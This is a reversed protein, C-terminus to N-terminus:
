KDLLISQSEVDPFEVQCKLGSPLQLRPNPISLTIGFTNSPADIAKDVQEVHATYSSKALTIEPTVVANMGPKIIGYLNSPAFVEVKLPDLQALQLIPEFYIHEGPEKYRELIVGDVPSTITRRELDALARNYELAAQRKRDKAQQLQQAALQYETSAKDLEAYSAAKNDYLDKVRKLNREAFHLGLEQAEIDSVLDAQMRRLEVTAAELSAELKALVDGASVNQNKSVLIESVVGETPSSIDIRVHPEIRCNLQVPPNAHAGCAFVATLLVLNRFASM